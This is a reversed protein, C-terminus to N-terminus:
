GQWRIKWDLVDKNFTYFQKREVEFDVLEARKCNVCNKCQNCKITKEFLKEFEFEADTRAYYFNEQTSKRQPM